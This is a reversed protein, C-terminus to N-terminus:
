SAQFGVPIGEAVDRPVPESDKGVYPALKNFRLSKGRQSDVTYQVDPLLELLPLLLLLSGISAQRSTPGSLM